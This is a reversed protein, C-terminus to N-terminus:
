ANPVVADPSTTKDVALWRAEKAPLRIQKGTIATM